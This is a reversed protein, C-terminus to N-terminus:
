YVMEGVALRCEESGGENEISLRESNSLYSGPKAVQNRRKPAGLNVDIRHGGTLDPNM